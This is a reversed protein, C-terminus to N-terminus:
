SNDLECCVNGDVGDVTVPPVRGDGVISLWEYPHHRIGRQYLGLIELEEESFSYLFQARGADDGSLVISELECIHYAFWAGM